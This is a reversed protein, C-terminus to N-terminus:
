GHRLEDFLGMIKRVSDGIIFGEAKQRARKGFAERLNQDMLLGIKSAMEEVNSPDDLIFGEKGDEIIESAGTNRTTIVPLGSAMAELCANSFPDYFSPLIFIDSSAYFKEIENTTGVFIVDKEIGSKKAMQRYYNYNGKGVVLLKLRSDQGGRKASRPRPTKLRSIANILFGLGKREFGSGVFLLVIDNDSIGYRKRIEDRYIGSNSPSFRSLDV